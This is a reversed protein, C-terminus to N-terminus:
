NYSKTSSSNFKSKGLQNQRGLQAGYLLNTGFISHYVVKLIAPNANHRIKSLIGIARNLKIKVQTIQDSWQILLQSHTQELLVRFYKVSQSTSLKKGDLEFKLSHDISATNRQFIILEIKSINLSLKNAKLWQPLSKLDKNLNKLLVDFSKNSQMINTDDAFHYTKSHKVSRHLDNINLLFLVPGQPASTITEKTNFISNGISVFQKRNKLYSQFRDRSLGKVYYELKKLLIDHNFTDFAKKLDIFVDAAFDKSDLATQINEIVSLLGNNTSLNSCFGFQLNYFCNNEELFKNLRQHMIKEIIKSINSLLSIPRYNNCLLRSETKFIPIVKATKYINRFCGTSFSKNMLKSLPISIKDKILRLIKTPISNPGCM